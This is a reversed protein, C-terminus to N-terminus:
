GICGVRGPHSLTGILAGQRHRVGMVQYVQTSSVGKVWRGPRYPDGARTAFVM